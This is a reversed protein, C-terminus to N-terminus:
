EGFFSLIDNIMIDNYESTFKDCANKVSKDEKPAGGKIGKAPTSKTFIEENSETDIISLTVVLRTFYNGSNESQTISGDVLMILKLKTNKDTFVASTKKSFSNKFNSAMSDIYNNYKKNLSIDNELRLDFNFVPPNVKIIVEKAPIGLKKIRNYFINLEAEDEAADEIFAAIDLKIFFSQMKENSLAKNIICSVNGQQDTISKETIDLKGNNNVFLVPFNSVPKGEYSINYDVTIPKPNIKDIESKTMASTIKYNNMVNQMRGTLENVLIIEKGNYKAKLARTVYKGILYYGLFAYKFKLAPDTEDDSKKLFDLGNNRANDMKIQQKRKYEDIDIRYYAWYGEEPSYWIGVLELDELDEKVSLQISQSVDEEIVGNTERLFDKIESNVKVEIQTALTNIASNKAQIITKGNGIGIYYKSTVPYNTVWDPKAGKTIKDDTDETKYISKKVDKENITFSKKNFKKEIRKKIEDALDELDKEPNLDEFEKDLDSLSGEIAKKSERLDVKILVFVVYFNDIKSIERKEIKSFYLINSTISSSTTESFENIQSEDEVKAEELFQKTITNIEVWLMRSIESRAFNSASTLALQQNKKKAYGTSYLINNDVPPKIFWKPINLENENSYALFVSLIIIFIIAPKKNNFINVM